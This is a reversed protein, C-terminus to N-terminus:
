GGALAEFLSVTNGDKLVTNHDVEVDDIAVVMQGEEGGCPIGLQLILQLATTGDPLTLLITRGTSGAPRHRRLEGFHRLQITM